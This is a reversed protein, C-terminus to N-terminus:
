FSWILSILFFIIIVGSIQYFFQEGWLMIALHAHHYTRQLEITPWLMELIMFQRKDYIAHSDSCDLEFLKKSNYEYNGPMCVVALELVPSIHWFLFFDIKFCFEIWSKSKRCFVFIYWVYLRSIIKSQWRKGIIQSRGSKWTPGRKAKWLNCQLPIRFLTSDNLACVENRLSAPTSRPFSTQCPTLM